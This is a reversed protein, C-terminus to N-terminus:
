ARSPTAAVVGARVAAARRALFVFFTAFAALVTLIVGLLVLIGLNMGEALPSESRGFCTACALAGPSVLLPLLVAFLFGLPRHRSPPLGPVASPRRHVCICARATVRVASALCSALRHSPFGGATMKERGRSRRGNADMPPKM